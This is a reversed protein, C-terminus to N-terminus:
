RRKQIELMAEVEARVANIDRRQKDDSALITAFRLSLLASELQKASKQCIALNYHFDSVWPEGFIAAQYEKIAAEFDNQEKAFKVFAAGKQACYDAGDSIAPPPDLKPLCAALGQVVREARKEDERYFQTRGDKRNGWLTLFHYTVKSHTYVHFAKRYEGKALHTDAVELTIISAQLPPADQARCTLSFCLFQLAVLLTSIKM